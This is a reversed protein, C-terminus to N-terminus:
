ELLLIFIDLECRSNSACLTRVIGALSSIIGRLGDCSRRAAQLARPSYIGCNSYLVSCNLATHRILAANKSPPEPSPLAISCVRHPRGCLFPYWAPDVSTTPQAADYSARVAWHSLQLQWTPGQCGLPPKPGESSESLPRELM